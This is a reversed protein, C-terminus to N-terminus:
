GPICEYLVNLYHSNSSCESIYAEFLNVSCTTKGNCANQLNTYSKCDSEVFGEQCYDRM